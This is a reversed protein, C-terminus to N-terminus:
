TFKPRLNGIWGCIINSIEFRFKFETEIVISVMMKTELAIYNDDRCLHVRGQLHWPYTSSSGMTMKCLNQVLLNPFGSSFMKKKIEFFLGSFKLFINIKIKRDSNPRKTSIKFNQNKLRLVFDIEKEIELFYNSSNKLM